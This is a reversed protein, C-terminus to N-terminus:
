PEGLLWLHTGWQGDEMVAEGQPTWCVSVVRTHETCCVSALLAPEVGWKPLVSLLLPVPLLEARGRRDQPEQLGARM